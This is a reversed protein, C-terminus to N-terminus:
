SSGLNSFTRGPRQELLAPGNRKHECARRSSASRRSPARSSVRSGRSARGAPAAAGTTSSHRRDVPATATARCLHELEVENAHGFLPRMAEVDGWEADGLLCARGAEHGDKREGAAFAARSIRLRDAAADIQREALYGSM